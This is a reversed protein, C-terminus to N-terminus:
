LKRFIHVYLMGYIRFVIWIRTIARCCCCLCYRTPNRNSRLSIKRFFYFKLNIKRIKSQFKFFIDWVLLPYFNGFYLFKSNKEKNGILIYFINFIEFFIDKGVSLGAVADQLFFSKEYKPLWEIIPLRRKLTKVTCCNGLGHSLAECINPFNEQYSADNEEIGTNQTDTSSNILFNDFVFKIISSSM